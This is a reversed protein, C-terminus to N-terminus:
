YYQLLMKASSLITQTEKTINLIYLIDINSTLNQQMIKVVWPSSVHYENLSSFVDTPNGLVKKTRIKKKQRNTEM